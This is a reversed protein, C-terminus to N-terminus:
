LIVDNFGYTTELRQPLISHDTDIRNFSIKYNNFM